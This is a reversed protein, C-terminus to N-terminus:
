RVAWRELGGGDGWGGHLWQDSEIVKDEELDEADAGKAIVPACWMVKKHCQFMNQINEYNEVVAINL